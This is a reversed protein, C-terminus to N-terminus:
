VRTEMSRARELSGGHAGVFGCLVAGGGCRGSAACRLRAPQRTGRAHEGGESRRRKTGVDTPRSRLARAV